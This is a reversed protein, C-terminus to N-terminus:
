CCLKNQSIMSVCSFLYSKDPVNLYAFLWIFNGFYNLKAFMIEFTIFINNNNNLEILTFPVFFRESIKINVKIKINNVSVRNRTFLNLTTKPIFFSSM